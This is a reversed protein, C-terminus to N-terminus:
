AAAGRALEAAHEADNWPWPEVVAQMEAAEEGAYREAVWANHERAKDDAIHRSPQAVVDDPGVFRICWLATM